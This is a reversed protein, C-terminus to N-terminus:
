QTSNHPLEPGDLLHFAENRSHQPSNRALLRRGTASPMILEFMGVYEFLLQAHGDFNGFSLKLHHANTTSINRMHHSIMNELRSDKQLITALPKYLNTTIRTLHIHGPSSQVPLEEVRYTLQDM